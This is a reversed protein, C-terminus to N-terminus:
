PIQHIHMLQHNPINHQIHMQIRMLRHHFADFKSDSTRIEEKPRDCEIPFMKNTNNIM